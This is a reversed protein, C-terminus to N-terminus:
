ATVPKTTIIRLWINGVAILVPLYSGWPAPLFSLDMLELAELTGTIGNFWITKSTYWPKGTM